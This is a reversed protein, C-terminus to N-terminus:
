TRKQRVIREAIEKAQSLTIGLSNNERLEVIKKINIFYFGDRFKIVVFSPLPPSCFTDCPKQRQDEDSLKWVLGEKETAQLGEYQHKELNTFYFTDKDTQKLEYYGYLRKERLYQNLLVQHKAEKKM